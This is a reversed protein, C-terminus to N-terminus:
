ADFADAICSFGLDFFCTLPKYKVMNLCFLIEFDVVTKM